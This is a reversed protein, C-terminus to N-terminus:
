TAPVADRIMSKLLSTSFLNVALTMNDDRLAEPYGEPIVAELKILPTAVKIPLGSVPDAYTAPLEFRCTLTRVGSGNRKASALLKAFAVPSLGAKNYWVAQGGDGSAPTILTFLTDVNAANKVTLNTAQPM